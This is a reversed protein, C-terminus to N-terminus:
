IGTVSTILNKEALWNEFMEFLQQPDTNGSIVPAFTIHNTIQNSAKNNLQSDLNKQQNQNLILEGSNVRALIKDGYYSSGGVIGGTAFRPIEPIKPINVGPIKNVMSAMSNLSRIGRNVNDIISNATNRMANGVGSSISNFAGVVQDKTRNINDGWSNLTTKMRDINTVWLYYLGAVVLGLLIFPWTAAIVAIAMKVFAGVVLVAVISSLGVLVAQSEPTNSTIFGYFENIKQSLFTVKEATGAGFLQDIWMGGDMAEQGGSKLLQFIETFANLILDLDISSIFDILQDLYPKIVPLLKEGFQRLKENISDMLNSWKGQFTQSQQDMMGSFKKDAMIKPLVALMEQTTAMLEGNKNVGKGTAKVWDDTTILLDRFMDVAMGKQGTVLKAYAGGVQDIPKGSAAALDGLMIVNDRSYKGMAQLQNGLKVVEDLEFPTTAGIEAYEKLRANAKEQTGLMTTLTARYIEFDGAQKIAQGGVLGLLGITGTLGVAVGTKMIGATKDFASNMAGFGQSALGSTMSKMRSMQNHVQKMVGSAMDKAQILISLVSESM